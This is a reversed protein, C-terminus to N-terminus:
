NFLIKAHDQNVIEVNENNLQLRTSFKYKDTFNFIMAKTKKQNLIMKKKITWEQIKQLYEQSKLNEAPIVQNHSPLDSPVAQWRWLEDPIHKCKARAM